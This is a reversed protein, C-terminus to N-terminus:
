VQQPTSKELDSERRQAWGKKAIPTEGPREGVDVSM